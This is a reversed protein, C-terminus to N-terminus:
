REHTFVQVLRAPPTRALRLAPLLAALAAAVLAIGGLRLWEVPFWAMPLRWGFAAVNVVALLLWALALGVPLALLATFLALLVARCIEMMALKRRTVGMAWVPALQPQRMNAITVLSTFIAFAAIGLTLVNLADTVAFTQEFVRISFAKVVNQQVVQRGALDFQERLDDALTAAQADPLVVAFRKRELDPFWDELLDVSVMAQALPNGYDSYIAVVPLTSGQPLALTDGLQLNARRHLQENILVGTGAVARDWADETRSLLPWNERYIPHDSVGFIQGKQGALRAEENWIPLVADARDSLYSRMDAAQAQTSATVYLQASLRQDLWGTFTDRFSGVMTSVGINAALALLLAMLALSLGPVQQRTDAWFWQVVVSRSFGACVRLATALVFPLVLAASLLLAGLIIFGVVLGEGVILLLAGLAGLIVAAALQWRQTSGSAMAWARARGGDLISLRSTQWLSGAAALATGALAIAMGSAWWQWRLELSGAVQAGYLGRLTAAVDPLLVAAIAYGLLIGLAGAVTALVLLELGIALMLTTNPVGLLRLSRVMTRRQEFALGVAGRVIFLGVAFSLFGFATLNLHFAGTLESIDSSREPPVLELNDAVTELPPRTDIQDGRVVLVNMSDPKKLLDQAVSIDTVIVGPSVTTSLRQPPLDTQSAVVAASGPHVILVGPPNLFTDIGLTQEGGDTQAGENAAPAILGNLLGPPATLPEIGVVRFRTNKIRLTGELQPSTRWGSRQLAVFTRTSIMGGDKAVITARSSRALTEDARDYSARAEANIAQVGCWLGTALGLGLVLTLLQGPHRRWHSLLAKLSLAFM